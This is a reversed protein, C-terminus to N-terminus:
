VNQALQKSMRFLESFTRGFLPTVHTWGSGTKSFSKQNGWLRDLRNDLQQEFANPIVHRWPQVNLGSTLSTQVDDDTIWATEKTALDRSCDFLDDPERVYQEDGDVESKSRRSSSKSSQASSLSEPSSSGSTQDKARLAYRLASRRARQSPRGPDCDHGLKECRTCSKRGPIRECQSTLEGYLLLLLLFMTGEPSRACLSPMKPVDASKAPRTSANVNDRPQSSSEAPVILFTSTQIALGRLASKLPVLRCRSGRLSAHWTLRV